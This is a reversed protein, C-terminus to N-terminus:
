QGLLVAVADAEFSSAVVDLKGDENIDGTALKYAGPGVRFPSGTAPVFARGDGILVVVASNYPSAVSNVTGVILDARKDRNVDGVAVTFASTTSALPFTLPKAFKGDSGGFLVSLLEKEGHSLVIDLRADGNLDSLVALGPNTDVVVPTNMGQLFEGTGNGRLAALKGPQQISLPSMAVAMDLHGDRDLDGLAASYTNYGEELRVVRVAAFGGLGDGTFIEVTNRRGNQTVIDVKKDENLDSFWVHPKYLDMSRNAILRLGPTRFRGDGNGIFVHLYENTTDRSAQVCDLIGDANVDGFAIAAHRVVFDEQGAGLPVFRGRGDGTRIDPKGNSRAGAVLDLHGDRNLDFLGVYGTGGAVNVPSGAVFLPSQADTQTIWCL